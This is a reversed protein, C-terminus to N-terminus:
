ADSDPMANRIPMDCSISVGVLVATSEHSGCPPSIAEYVEELDKEPRQM